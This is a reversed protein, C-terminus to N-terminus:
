VPGPGNPVRLLSESLPHSIRTLGKEILRPLSPSMETNKVFNIICLITCDLKGDNIVDWGNGTRGFAEQNISKM